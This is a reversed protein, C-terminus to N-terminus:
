ESEFSPPHLWITHLRSTCKIIRTLLTTIGNELQGAKLYKFFKGTAMMEEDDNDGQFMCCLKPVVLQTDSALLEKEEEEM